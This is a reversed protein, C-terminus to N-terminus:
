AALAAVVEARAGYYATAADLSVFCRAGDTDAVADLAEQARDLLDLAADLLDDDGAIPWHARPAGAIAVAAELVTSDSDLGLDSAPLRSRNSRM